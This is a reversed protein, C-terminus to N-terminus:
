ARRLEQIPLEMNDFMPQSVSTLGAKVGDFELDALGIPYQAVDHEAM